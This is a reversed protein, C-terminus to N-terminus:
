EPLQKKIKYREKQKNPSIGYYQKYARSFSYISQYGLEEAVASVSHNELLDNARLMRKENRYEIISVGFAEKFKRELYFKSHFFRKSFDDLSMTLGNGSDLYDRIQFEVASFKQEELKDLFNDSMVSSLLQIMLAKKILPSSERSIIRYFNNLFEEKSKINIFPTKPYNSFYDKHIWSKETDTMEELDKFSVPIIESQTRYTIDFHIHPQSFDGNDAHFSHPIGPRIFIIDGVKCHYPIDDYIFTFEGREIYILEYDYIVRRKINHGSPIVSHMVVRIYPNILSSHM